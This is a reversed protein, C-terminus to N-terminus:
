FLRPASTTISATSTGLCPLPRYIHDAFPACNVEEASAGTTGLHFEISLKQMVGLDSEFRREVVRGLHHPLRECENCLVFDLTGIVHGAFSREGIQFFHQAFHYIAAALDLRSNDRATVLSSAHPRASRM